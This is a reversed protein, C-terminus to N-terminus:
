PTWRWIRPRGTAPIPMVTKAGVAVLTAYPQPVARCPPGGTM